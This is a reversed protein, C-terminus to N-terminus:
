HRGGSRRRAAAARRRRLEAAACLWRLAGDATAALMAVDACPAAADDGAGFGGVVAVAGGAAGLAGAPVGGASRLAAAAHGARGAHRGGPARSWARSELSLSYAEGLLAAGDGEGGGSPAHGGFLVLAAAGPLACLSAGRATPPPTTLRAASQSV